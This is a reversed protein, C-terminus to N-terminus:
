KIVDNAQDANELTTHIVIIKSILMKFIAM